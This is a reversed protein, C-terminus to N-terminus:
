GQRYYVRSSLELFESPPPPHDQVTYMKQVQCGHDKVLVEYERKLQLFHPATWSEPDHVVSNTLSGFIDNVIVTDVHRHQAILIAGSSTVHYECEYVPHM